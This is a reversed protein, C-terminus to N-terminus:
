ERINESEKFYTDRHFVSWSLVSDRLLSKVTSVSFRLYVSLNIFCRGLGPIM